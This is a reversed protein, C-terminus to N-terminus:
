DSFGGQSEKMTSRYHFFVIWIAAWGSFILVFGLLWNDYNVISYLGALFTVLFVTAYFAVSLVPARPYPSPEMWSGCKPCRPVREAVEFGCNPCRAM